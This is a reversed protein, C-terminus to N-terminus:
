FGPNRKAGDPSRNSSGYSFARFEEPLFDRQLEDIIKDHRIILGMGPWSEEKGRVDVRVTIDWKPHHALLAQLAEIISPELLSLNQVELQQRYWGWNEDLLWYDGKRIPDKQGFRDMTETIRDHLVLWEAEQKATGNDSM